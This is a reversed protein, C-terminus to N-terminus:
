EDIKQRTENTVEVMQDVILNYEDNTLGGDRSIKDAKWKMCSKTSEKSSKRKGGLELNKKMNIQEKIEYHQTM